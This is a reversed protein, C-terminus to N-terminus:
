RAINLRYEQRYLKFFSLVYISYMVFVLLCIPGILLIDRDVVFMLVNIISNSLMAANLIYGDKISAKRHDNFWWARCKVYLKNFLLYSIPLLACVITFSVLPKRNAPNICIAYGAIILAITFLVTPWNLFYTINQWHKKRMAKFTQKTSANEIAKLNDIGGFEQDVIQKTLSEPYIVDSDPMDAIVLMVHDFVEDFTERYKIDYNLYLKIAETQENTLVM